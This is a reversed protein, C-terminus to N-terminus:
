IKETKGVVLSNKDSHSSNALMSKKLYRGYATGVNKYKKEAEAPEIGFKEGIKRWCNLGVFKNKYQKNFKNYLCAYMQVEEMFLSTLYEVNNDSM